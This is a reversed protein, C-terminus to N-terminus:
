AFRDLFYWPKKPSFRSRLLVPIASKLTSKERFGMVSLFFTALYKPFEDKSLGKNAM